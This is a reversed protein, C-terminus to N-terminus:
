KPKQAYRMGKLLTGTIGSTELTGNVDCNEIDLVVRNPNKLVFVHHNAASSLDFVVRTVSQRDAVRVDNIKVTESSGFAPYCLLFLSTILILYLPRGGRCAKTSSLIARLFPYILQRM